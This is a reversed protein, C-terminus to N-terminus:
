FRDAVGAGREGAAQGRDAAAGPMVDNPPIAGASKRLARVDADLLALEELLREIQQRQRSVVLSFYLSVVVVFFTVVLLLVAPPYHVGLARAAVDLASRWVSLALLAGACSIWIVSYEETLRRRRVLELVLLLLALSIAVSVIQVPDTM